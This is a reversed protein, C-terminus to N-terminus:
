MSSLHFVIRQFTCYRLVRAIRCSRNTQTRAPLTDRADEIWISHPVFSLMCLCNANWFHCMQLCLRYALINIIINYPLLAHLFPPMTKTMNLSSSDLIWVHSWLESRKLKMTFETFFSVARKYSGTKWLYNMFIWIAQYIKMTFPKFVTEWAHEIFWLCNIFM